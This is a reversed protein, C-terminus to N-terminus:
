TVRGPGTFGRSPVNDRSSVWPGGPRPIMVPVHGHVAVIRVYAEGPPFRGKIKWTERDRGGVMKM